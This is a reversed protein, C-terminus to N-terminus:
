NSDSNIFICLEEYEKFKAAILAKSRNIAILLRGLSVAENNTIDKLNPLTDLDAMDITKGLWSQNFVHLSRYLNHQEEYDQLFAQLGKEPDDNIVESNRVIFSNFLSQLHLEEM